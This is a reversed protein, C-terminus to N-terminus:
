TTNPPARRPRGRLIRREVLDRLGASPVYGTLREGTTAELWDTEQRNWLWREGRELTLENLEEDAPEEDENALPGVGYAEFTRMGACAHFIENLAEANIYELGGAEKNTKSGSATLKALYKFL